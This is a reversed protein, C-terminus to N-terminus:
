LYEEFLSRCRGVTLPKPLYAPCNKAGRLISFYRDFSLCSMIVFPMEPYLEQCDMWVDFGTADGELFIDTIVLDYPAGGHARGRRRILELAEEGSTVYEWQLGPRVSDVILDMFQILSLDDEIVLLSKASADLRTHEVRAVSAAQIM